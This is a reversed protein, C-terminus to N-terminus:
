KNKVKIIFNEIRERMSANNLMDGNISSTDYERSSLLLVQPYFSRNSFSYLAEHMAMDGGSVINGIVVINIKRLFKDEYENNDKFVSQGREWFKFYSSCLNGCFTPIAFIIEDAEFCKNYLKLLDDNKSCIGNKFCYYDCGGCEEINMDYINIVETVGSNENLLKSCYKLIRNCNGHERSSFSILLVKM